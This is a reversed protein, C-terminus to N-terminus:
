YPILAITEEMFMIGSCNESFNWNETMEIKKKEKINKKGKELSFGLIIKLNQKNEQNIENKNRIGIQDPEKVKDQQKSLRRLKTIENIDIDRIKLTETENRWWLFSIEIWKQNRENRIWNRTWNWSENSKLIIQKLDVEISYKPTRNM